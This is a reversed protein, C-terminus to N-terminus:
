GKVDSLAKDLASDLDFSKDGSTADDDSGSDEQAGATQLQTGNGSDPKSWAMALKSKLESESPAPWIKDFPVISALIEKIREDSEALKSDQRKFKIETSGYKKDKVQVLTVVLDLGRQASLFNRYEEDLLHELLRTYITEGFGWYKPALTPDSRDAVVAYFRQKARISKYLVYDEKTRSNKLNDGFDCIPCFKQCNWKLCILGPENGVNYHLWREVFPDETYPYKILRITSPNEKNPRWIPKTSLFKQPNRLRELKERIKDLNLEMTEKESEKKEKVKAVHKM